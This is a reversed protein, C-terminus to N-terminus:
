EVEVAYIMPDADIFIALWYISWTRLKIEGQYDEGLLAEWNQQLLHTAMRDRSGKWLIHGPALVVMEEALPQEALLTRFDFHALLCGRYSKKHYLPKVVCVEMGFITNQPFLRMQESDAEKIQQHITHLELKKVPNEPVMIEPNGTSDLLQLGNLWPMERIQRLMWELDPKKGLRELTRRLQEIQKDSDDLARALKQEADGLGTGQELDIHAPMSRYEYIKKGAEWPNCGWILVLSLLAATLGIRLVINESKDTHMSLM